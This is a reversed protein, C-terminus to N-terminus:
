IAKKYKHGNKVRNKLMNSVKFAPFICHDNNSFVLNKSNMERIEFKGLKPLEVSEGSILKEAVLGSAVNFIEDVVYKTVMCRNAVEETFDKKNLVKGEM